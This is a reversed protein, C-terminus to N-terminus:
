VVSKRDLRVLLSNDPDGRKVYREDYVLGNEFATLSAFFPKNGTLHCGECAPALGLRIEDNRSAPACVEGGDPKEDDTGGPKQESCAVATLALATLAARWMSRSTNM